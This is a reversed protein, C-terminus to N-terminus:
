RLTVPFTESDSYNENEDVVRIKVYYTRNIPFEKTIFQFTGFPILEHNMQIFEADSATKVFISYGTVGTPDEPPAWRVRIGRSELAAATQAVYM